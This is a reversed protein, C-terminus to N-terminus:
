LSWRAAVAPQGGIRAPAVALRTEADCPTVAWGAITGLIAGGVVDSFFHKDDRIRAMPVIATFAYLPLGPRWGYRRTLVTTLAFANASHGSPFSLGNSRDPRERALSFKFPSVLLNALTVARLVESAVPRLRESGTLRAATWMGGTVLLGFTTSGYYNGADMLAKLPQPDGIEGEIHEDLPHALAAVGLGIGILGLSRPQLLNLLDQHLLTPEVEDAGAIGVLLAMSVHKLVTAGRMLECRFAYQLNGQAFTARELEFDFDLKEGAGIAATPPVVLTKGQDLSRFDYRRRLAMGVQLFASVGRAEALRIVPGVMLTSYALTVDTSEDVVRGQRDYLTAKRDLLHYESGDLEAM